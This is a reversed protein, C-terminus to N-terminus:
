RLSTSALTNAYGGFKTGLLMRRLEARLYCVVCGTLQIAVCWWLAERCLWFVIQAYVAHEPGLIARGLVATGERFFAEWLVLLVCVLLGRGWRSEVAMASLGPLLFLLFVGRYDLNQAAFFCFVTVVAGAMFFLLRSADLTLLLREYRPAVIYGALLGLATLLKTGLVIFAAVGPHGVVTFFQPVNPELTLVPLYRLLALGFSINMAGFVCRFPLGAPLISIATASGHAFCILFVAGAAASMGLVAFLVVLRERVALGLLVVPYFKCAAAFLFVAYGLFAVWRRALLALVGILTLLFMVVDFNSSELAYVVTGSCVSLVRAMLEACGQAAPLLALAAIFAAGYLLGGVTLDQPGIGFDAARLLFPSYNYVGGNMCDSPAYVNVGEHWCAGAQLIANLDGYPHQNPMADWVLLLAEYAHPARLRLLIFAGYVLAVALSAGYRLTVQRAAHRGSFIGGQDAM